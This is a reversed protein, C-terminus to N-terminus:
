ASGLWGRRKFYVLLSAMVLVCVAWFVPYSYPWSMEPIFHFNMGYVGALFTVPIFLSTLITLLKMIENMRNSISSVYLETLSACTERHHDLIDLLQVTHAYVDRLFMHSQAGLLASEDRFLQDVLDRTPWVVRRLTSLDRKINQIKKLTDPTPAEMVDSELADLQEAYHELVPFNYDVIADLLAYALYGAERERIKAGETRIRKRIPDWCDGADEQFTILLDKFVFMTIQEDVLVDDALSIMRTVIFLHDEYPEVRPRQPVHMVDEAALTHFGYVTRFRNVVFPHLGDVNIWRVLAWSPRPRALLGEFDSSSEVLECREPGFDICSYTVAGAEPPHATGEVWEDLGPPAGPADADARTGSLRLISGSRPLPTRM